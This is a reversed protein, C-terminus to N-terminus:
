EDAEGEGRGEGGGEEEDGTDAVVFMLAFGIPLLVLVAIAGPMSFAAATSVADRRHGAASRGGASRDASVSFSGGLDAGTAGARVIPTGDHGAAGADFWEPQRLSSTDTKRGARPGAESTQDVAPETGGFPATGLSLVAAAAVAVFTRRYM